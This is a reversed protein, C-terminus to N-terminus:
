HADDTADLCLVTRECMASGPPRTRSRTCGSVAALRELALAMRRGRGEIMTVSGEDLVTVHVPVPRDAGLDSPADGSWELRDGRLIAKYTPLVLCRGYKLCDTRPIKSDIVNYRFDPESEVDTESSTLYGSV